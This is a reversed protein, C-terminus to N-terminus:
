KAYAPNELVVQSTIPLIEKSTPVFKEGGCGSGHEHIACEGAGHKGM